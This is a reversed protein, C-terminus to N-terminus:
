VTSFAAHPYFLISEDRLKPVLAYLKTTGGLNLLRAAEGKLGGTVPLTGHANRGGSPRQGEEPDAPVSEVM